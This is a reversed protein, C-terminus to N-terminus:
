INEVNSTHGEFVLSGDSQPPKKMALCALRRRLAENEAAIEEESFGAIGAACTVQDTPIATRLQFAARHARAAM